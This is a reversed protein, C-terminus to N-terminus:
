GGVGEREGEREKDRGREKKRQTAQRLMRGGRLEDRKRERGKEM